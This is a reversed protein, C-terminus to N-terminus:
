RDMVERVKRLFEGPSVPKAMFDAGAGGVGAAVPEAAYGSMFLAKIGPRARRIEELAERGGKRPMVVDLILLKVEDAAEAFIRVAEEGDSAELVRYGFEELMAKTVRRVDEEDEALLVTEDGSKLYASASYEFVGSEDALLPLYVRFTSGAGPASEAVVFGNHQKVLGYVISLGLGTGKGVEKTTFFPEFIRQRTAEDMGAGTDKVAVVAYRGPRGYGHENLFAEDIAAEGSSISLVGGGPMADRANTALNMLVQEVQQPDAVVGLEADPFSTELAITEGIVRALTKSFRKLLANLDIPKPSTTQRRSFALLGSTLSSARESLTLIQDAYGRLVDDGGRKMIILSGYGIIATLINNFDHAIGSALQGVAEMKQSHRLQDELHRKETVDEIIGDFYVEGAPSMRMVASISAWLRRGKLTRLEAEENRIFGQKFVRETLDECVAADTFFSKFRKHLIDEKAQADLMAVAARNIEIVCDDEWAATRYVGVALSNILEEYRQRADKEAELALKREVVPGLQASVATLLDVFGTDEETVSRMMFELIAMVTDGSMIPMAFCSRVGAKAAAAARPFTRCSSAADRMWEPRKTMLVRGPLGEGPKFTMGKSYAAFGDLGSGERIWVSISEVHDSGPAPTWVEGLDWGAAECVKEITVKLAAQLDEAESIALSLSQLLSLERESKRKLSETEITEVAFSIDAAMAEILNVEEADFFARDGSYINLAGRVGGGMNLPFAACSRFGHEIARDKWASFAPDSETDACIVPRGERIATGTPGRGEPGDGATIRLGDLYGASGGCSASPRVDLTRPEVAGIWALRFGGEEVMIRCAEDYLRGADHAHIIAENIGSLMAHLRALRRTKEESAKLIGVTASVRSAMDNFADALAGIEDDAGANVKATYDGSAIASAAGSIAQIRRVVGRAFLAYLALILSSVSAAAAIAQHRLGTAPLLASASDVEAVITWGMSPLCASSGAAEMGRHSGYFASAGRGHDMCGRTLPTDVVRNLGAEAGKQAPAEVILRGERNVVYVALSDKFANDRGMAGVHRSIEENLMDALGTVTLHNVVMGVPENAAMGRLLTAAAVVEMGAIRQLSPAVSARDDGSLRYFPEGSLDMGELGRETSALVRGDLSLISIAAIARDLPLKNRRLYYALAVASTKDGKVIRSTKERIVGDSSFDRVRQMSMELFHGAHGEYAGALAALGALINGELRKKNQHYGYAFTVAVPLLIVAVALLAKHSLSLRPMKKM